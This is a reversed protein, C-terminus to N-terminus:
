ARRNIPKIRSGVVVVRHAGRFLVHQNDNSPAVLADPPMRIVRLASREVPLEVGAYVQSSRSVIGFRVVVRCARVLVVTEARNAPAALPSALFCAQTVGIGFM